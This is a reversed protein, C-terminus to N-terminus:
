SRARPKRRMLWMGPLMPLWLILVRLVLTSALAVEFPVRLLTLAATCTAEFSGLGMPLPALTVAISAAIFAVFATVPLFPAGLALLCAALTAADALFVLANWGAVRAILKRDGVLEGPAEGVIQLLRAVPPVREIWRPLPRRGRHRMWLALSPLALAVLLFVTVVGVVPLTAARQIWLAALMALALVAFAAYYGIMSVLLAALATGRPTGLGSLRDVLLLNGSMGATPVAQDVFLKSLAIPLLRRLPQPSGAKALVAAWGMAVSCYTTAQLGLAALIWLPQARQVTAAFRQLDGWHLVVGVFAAVILAGFIVTRWRSSHHSQTPQEGSM